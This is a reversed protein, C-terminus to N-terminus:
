QGHVSSVVASSMVYVDGYTPDDLWNASVGIRYTWRGSGPKDVFHPTRTVGLDQLAVACGEVGHEVQCAYDPRASPVRYM